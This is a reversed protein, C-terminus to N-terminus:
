DANKAYLFFCIAQWCERHVVLAPQKGSNESYLYLLNSALMRPTCVLSQGSWDLQCALVTFSFTCETISILTYGLVRPLSTTVPLVVNDLPM